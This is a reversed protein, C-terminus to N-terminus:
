RHPLRDRIQEDAENDNRVSVLAAECPYGTVRSIISANRLAGATDRSAGTYSVEATIYHTGEQNPDAESAAIVLDAQIFSRRQAGTLGVSEAM